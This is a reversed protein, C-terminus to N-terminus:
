SIWPPMWRVRVTTGSRSKRRARPVCCPAWRNTVYMQFHLVFQASSLSPLPPTHRRRVKAELKLAELAPLVVVPDRFEYEDEEDEDADDAVAAGGPGGPRLWDCCVTASADVGTTSCSLKTVITSPDCCRHTPQPRKLPGTKCCM